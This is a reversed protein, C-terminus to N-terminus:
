ASGFSGVYYGVSRAFAYAVYERYARLDSRFVVGVDGNVSVFAAWVVCAARCFEVQAGRCENVLQGCAFVCGHLRDPCVDVSIVLAVGVAVVGREFSGAPSALM